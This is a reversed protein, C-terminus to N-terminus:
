LWHCTLLEARSAVGFKRYISRTHSRVTERSVCLACAVEELTRGQRLIALVRREAPTLGANADPLLEVLVLPEEADCLLQLEFAVQALRRGFRGGTPPLQQREPQAFSVVARQVEAPLTGDTGTARRLLARASRSQWVIRGALTALVVPHAARAEVLSALARAQVGLEARHRRRREVATLFPLLRALVGEDQQTFPRKRGLMLAAHAGKGPTCDTFNVCILEDVARPRYLQHYADSRRVARRGVARTLPVLCAGPPTQMLLTHQPDRGLYEAPYQTIDGLAGCSAVGLVSQRCEFVLAEARFQSQLHPLARHMDSLRDVTALEWATALVPDKPIVDSAM